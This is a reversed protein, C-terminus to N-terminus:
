GSAPLAPWPFQSEMAIDAVTDGSRLRHSIQRRVLNPYSKNERATSRAASPACRGEASRVPLDQGVKITRRLLLRIGCIGDPMALVGQGESMSRRM